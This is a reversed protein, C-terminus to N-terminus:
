RTTSGPAWGPSPPVRRRPSGPTIRALLAIMRIQDYSGTISILATGEIDLARSGWRSTETIRWWGCLDPSLENDDDM